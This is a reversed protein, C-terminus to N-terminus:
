AAVPRGAPVDPARVCAVVAGGLLALVGVVALGYGLLQLPRPAIDPVAVGSVLLLGGTDVLVAAAAARLVRHASARRLATEVRDDETAVAPRTAVVRLTALTVVVLVLLGIATPRGYFWGAFPSHSESLTGEQLPVGTTWTLSRGDPAALVAGAGIVLAAALTALTAARLLWGPATDFLGRRALRARRVQGTPRPWSVEGAALVAVQTLAFVIPVRLVTVGLQGGMTSGSWATGLASVLALAVALHATRRAHRRAAAVATELSPPAPRTLAAGVAVAAVLALVCLVPLLAV